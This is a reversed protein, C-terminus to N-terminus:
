LFLIECPFSPGPVVMLTECIQNAWSFQNRTSKISPAIESEYFRIQFIYWMWNVCLFMNKYIISIRKQKKVPPAEWFVQCRLLSRFTSFPAMSVAQYFLWTFIKPFLIKLLFLSLSRISYHWVNQDLIVKGNKFILLSRLSSKNQPSYRDSNVM